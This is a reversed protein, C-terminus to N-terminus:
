LTRMMAAYLALARGAIGFPQPDSTRVPGNSPAVREACSASACGTSQDM